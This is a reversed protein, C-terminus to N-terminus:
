PRSQRRKAPKGRSKRGRRAIMDALLNLAITALVNVYKVFQAQNKHPYKNYHNNLM